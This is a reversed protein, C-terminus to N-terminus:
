PPNKYLCEQQFAFLHFNRKALPFHGKAAKQPCDNKRSM